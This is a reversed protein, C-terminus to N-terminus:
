VDTSGEEKIPKPADDPPKIPNRADYEKKAVAKDAAISERTVGEPPGELPPLQTADDAAEDPEDGLWSPHIQPLEQGEGESEPRLSYASAGEQPLLPLQQDPQAQKINWEGREGLQKVTSELAEAESATEAETPKGMLFDELKGFLEQMEPPVEINGAAGAQIQDVLYSLDEYENVTYGRGRPLPAIDFGGRSQLSVDDESLRDIEEQSLGEDPAIYSTKSSLNQFNLLEAQLETFYRELYKSDPRLQQQREDRDSAQIGWYKDFVPQMVTEEIEELEDESLNRGIIRRIHGETEKIVMDIPNRTRDTISDSWLLKNEFRDISEFSTDARGIESRDMEMTYSVNGDADYEIREVKGTPNGDKDYIQRFSPRLEGGAQGYGSVVEDIKSNNVTFRFINALDRQTAPVSSAPLEGWEIDDVKTLINDLFDSNVQADVEEIEADDLSPAPKPDFPEGTPEEQQQADFINQQETRYDAEKKSYAVYLADSRAQRREAGLGRILHGFEPNERFFGEEQETIRGSAYGQWNPNEGQFVDTINKFGVGDGFAKIDEMTIPTEFDFVRSPTSQFTGSNFKGITNNFNELAREGELGNLLVMGFLAEKTIPKGDAGMRTGAWLDPHQLLRDVSNVANKYYDDRNNYIDWERHGEPNVTTYIDNESHYDANHQMNREYTESMEQWREDREAWADFVEEEEQKRTNFDEPSEDGEENYLENPDYTPPKEREPPKADDFVTIDFGLLSPDPPPASTPETYMKRHLSAKLGKIQNSLFPSLSGIFKGDKSMKMQGAQPHGSPYVTGKMAQFMYHTKLTSQTRAFEPATRLFDERQNEFMGDIWEPHEEVFKAVRDHADDRELETLLALQEDNYLPIREGVFQTPEPHILYQDFFEEVAGQAKAPDISPLGVYARNSPETLDTHTEQVSGQYDRLLSLIKSLDSPQPRQVAFSEEIESFARQRSAIEGPTQRVDEQQTAEPDFREEGAINYMLSTSGGLSRNNRGVNQLTRDLQDFLSQVVSTVHRADRPTYPNTASTPDVIDALAQLQAIIGTVQPKNRDDWNIGYKFDEVSPAIQFSVNFNGEDDPALNFADFDAFAPDGETQRNVYDDEIEAPSKMEGLRMPQVTRIIRVLKADDNLKSIPVFKTETTQELDAADTVPRVEMLQGAINLDERTDGAKLRNKGSGVLKIFDEQNVFLYHAPQRALDILNSLRSALARPDGEYEGNLQALPPLTGESEFFYRTDSHEYEAEDVWNASPQVLEQRGEDLIDRSIRQETKGGAPAPADEVLENRLRSWNLAERWNQRQVFHEVWDKDEQSLLMSGKGSVARSQLYKFPERVDQGFMIRLQPHTDPTIESIPTPSNRNLVSLVYPTASSQTGPRGWFLETEEYPTAPKQLYRYTGGPRLRTTTIMEGEPDDIWGQGPVYIQQTKAPESSEIEHLNLLGEWTTPEDTPSLGQDEKYSDLAQRKAEANRQLLIDRIEDRSLDGWLGRNEYTTILSEPIEEEIRQTQREPISAAIEQMGTSFQNAYREDAEIDMPSQVIEPQDYPTQENVFARQRTALNDVLGDIAKKGDDNLERTGILAFDQYAPLAERTEVWEQKMSNDWTYWKKDEQSFVHVPIGRAIGMAIGWGTGGEGHIPKDGEGGKQFQDVVAYVGQANKIQHWNRHILKSTARRRPRYREGGGTVLRSYARTVRNIVEPDDLVDTHIYRESRTSHGRNMKHGRFSHGISRGNLGARQMAEAGYSDSGEALGTHNTYGGDELTSVDVEPPNEYNHKANFYHDALPGDEEPDNLIRFRYSTYDGNAFPRNGKNNGSKDWEPEGEHFYGVDWGEREAWEDPEMEATPIVETVEVLFGKFDSGEHDPDRIGLVHGVEVDDWEKTLRTTQTRYNGDGALMLNYANGAGKMDENHQSAAMIQRDLDTIQKAYYEAADSDAGTSLMQDHLYSKQKELDRTPIERFKRAYSDENYNMPVSKDFDMPTLPKNGDPFHEDLPFLADPSRLYDYNVEGGRTDFEWETSADFADSTPYQELLESRVNMLLKGLRNGSNGWFHDGHSNGEILKRNGTELLQRALGKNNMFKDQLILRMLDVSEEGRHSIATYESNARAINKSEYPSIGGGKGRAERIDRRIKPDTFKSAQFAHEPSPYREGDDEWEETKDNWMWGGVSAENAWNSDDRLISFNSLFSHDMFNSNPQPSNFSNIPHNDEDIDIDPQELHPYSGFAASDHNFANRVDDSTYGRETVQHGQKRNDWGKFGDEDAALRDFQGDANIIRDRILPTLKKGFMIMRNTLRDIFDGNDGEHALNWAFMDAIEEPKYGAEGTGLDTIHFVMEPHDNMFWVFESIYEGLNHLDIQRKTRAPTEKTPLAYSNGTLGEGVGEEAGHKKKAELAAGKGHVGELNSGFVFIHQKPQSGPRGWLKPQEVGPLGLQEGEEAKFIDALIGIDDISKNLNFDEAHKEVAQQVARVLDEADPMMFNTHDKVLGKTYIQDGLMVGAAHDTPYHLGAILRHLGISAGIKEFGEAFDPYKDGLAKGIVKGAVSHASPYSPTNDSEANRTVLELDKQAALQQPRPRNFMYKFRMAISNIDDLLIRLFHEDVPLHNTEAFRLFPAILDKDEEEIDRITDPDESLKRLMRIFKLEMGTEEASNKFPKPLSLEDFSTQLLKLRSTMIKLDGDSPQGYKLDDIHFINSRNNNSNIYGRLEEVADEKKALLSFAALNNRQQREM